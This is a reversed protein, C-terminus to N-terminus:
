VFTGLFVDLSTNRLYDIGPAPENHGAEVICVDMKTGNVGVIDVKAINGVRIDDRRPDFFGDSSGFGTLQYAATAPFMFHEGVSLPGGLLKDVRNRGTIRYHQSTGVAVRDQDVAIDDAIRLNGLLSGIREASLYLPIRDRSLGGSNELLLGLPQQFISCFGNTQGRFLLLLPLHAAPMRREIECRSTPNGRYLNGAAAVKFYKLLEFVHAFERQTGVNAARQCAIFLLQSAVGLEFLFVGSVAVPYSEAVYPNM